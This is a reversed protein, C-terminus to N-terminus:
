RSASPTEGFRLIWGFAGAFLANVLATLMFGPGFGLAQNVPGMFASSVMMGLYICTNYGGMAVGRLPGPASEAILAGISTFALGMGIGMLSSFFLFGAMQRSLGLGAMSLALICVGAVIPRSRRPVRDSLRGFPIRSLGNLIGQAFFVTGIQAASLGHNQAHLPIFSTFMGMGFCAGLTVLWCGVVPRNSFLGALAKWRGTDSVSADETGADGPLFLILVCFAAVLTGGAATFAPTFAFRQVIFGGAAPGFSMGCFIATTYWGYARGLHTRPAIRAVFAMMTPGFAALGAGFCLHVLTLHAFTRCFGLSVSAAALILIGTAAVPKSGWRDSVMGMPFSFIGATLFFASNIFGIQSTSIGLARAYLPVVPLRMFTAFYCGFTIACCIFLLPGYAPGAKDSGPTQNSTM